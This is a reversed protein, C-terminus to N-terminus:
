KGGTCIDAMGLRGADNHKLICTCSLDLHCYNYTGARTYVHMWRTSVSSRCRLTQENTGEWSTFWGVNSASMIRREGAIFVLLQQARSTVQKKIWARTDSPLKKEVIELNGATNVSVCIMKRVHGELGTYRLIASYERAPPRAREFAFCTSAPPAQWNVRPAPNRDSLPPSSPPLIGCSSRDPSSSFLTSPRPYLVCGGM